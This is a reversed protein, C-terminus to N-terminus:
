KEYVTLSHTQTCQIIQSRWDAGLEDDARRQVIDIAKKHLEVPVGIQFLTYRAKLRELDWGAPYSFAFPRTITVTEAKTFFGPLHERIERSTWGPSRAETVGLTQLAESYYRRVPPTATDSESKTKGSAIFLGGSILVRKAEDVVEGPEGVFHLLNLALVM